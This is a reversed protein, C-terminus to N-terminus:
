RGATQRKIGAAIERRDPVGKPGPYVRCSVCDGKPEGSIDVGNLLITPSGWGRLEDPTEPGLVDIEEYKELGCIALAAELEVRAAAALPCGQFTLLQIRVGTSKSNM